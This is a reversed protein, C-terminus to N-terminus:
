SGSWGAATFVENLKERTLMPREGARLLTDLATSVRREHMHFDKEGCFDCGECIVEISVGGDNGGLTVYITGGSCAISDSRERRRVDYGRLHFRRITAIGGEGISDLWGEIAAKNKHRLIFRFDHNEYFLKFTDERTQRCVRLLTLDLCQCHQISWFSLVPNFYYCKGYGFILEYIRNRLEPPLTLFAAPQVAQTAM